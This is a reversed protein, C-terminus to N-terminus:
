VNKKKNTEPLVDGGTSHLHLHFFYFIFFFLRLSRAGCIYETLAGEGSVSRPLFSNLPTRSHFAVVPGIVKCKKMRNFRGLENNSISVAYIFDASTCFGDLLQYADLVYASVWNKKKALGLHSHLM